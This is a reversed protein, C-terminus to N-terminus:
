FPGAQRSGKKRAHNVGNQGGIATVAPYDTKIQTVKEILCSQLNPAVKPMTPYIPISVLVEVRGAHFSRVERYYLGGSPSALWALTDPL